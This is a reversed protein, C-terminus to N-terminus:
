RIAAQAASALDAASLRGSLVFLPQVGIEWLKVGDRRPDNGMVGLLEVGRPLRRLDLRRRGTVAGDDYTVWTARGPGEFLGQVIGEIAQYPLCKLGDMAYATVATAVAAPTPTRDYQILLSQYGGYYMLTDVNHMQYPFFKSVGAKAHEIWVRSAFATARLNTDPTAYRLHTYFGNGCLAGNTGETDWCETVRAPLLRRHEPLEGAFPLTGGGCLNNAYNHFSFVDVANRAEEPIAEGWKPNGIDACWGVVTCDPNGRKLGTYGALHLEGYLKAGGSFSGPMYPENWVEWYDIRGAYHRALEECFRGFAAVDVPNAGETKVQAWEPPHDPLGLINLGGQRIADVVEDHWLFKGPERETASWKTLLSCDHVRTWTFGLQRVYRVLAPRLAIHTGFMGATGTNRPPPVLAMVLEQPAALAPDVTRLEVRLLGRRDLELDLRREENITLNLTKQWVTLDPFAVIRVEVKARTLPTTDAAAALLNLPVPRGWEVLNGSDQGIDAYLELPFAPRYDSAQDGPEFQLGDVYVTGQQVASTAVQLMVQVPLTPDAANPPAEPITTFSVRQWESTLKPYVSGNKLGQQHRGSWYYQLAISGPFGPPDAKMWASVTYPKGPLVDHILSLTGPQGAHKASPVALCYRGVKGGEARYHQPDEWDAEVGEWVGDRPWGFFLTSWQHDRRGEFSSRPLLNGASPLSVAKPAAEPFPRAAEEVRLDDIWITGVSGHEWCVGVDDPVDEACKGSFSYQQWESTWPKFDAWVYVTWPYDIKRVYCRVPGEIGDGKLWYSIRYYQDKKLTLKTFFFQMGGSAIGRVQIRQATGPRGTERDPALQMDKRGWQWNNACGEHVLQEGTSYPGEFDCAAVVTSGPPNEPGQTATEQAPLTPRLWALCLTAALADLSRTRRM